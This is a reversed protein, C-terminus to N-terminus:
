FKEKLKRGNCTVSKKLSHMIVSCVALKISLKLRFREIHLPNNGISSWLLDTVSIFRKISENSRSNFDLMSKFNDNIQSADSNMAARNSDNGVVSSRSQSSQMHNRCADVDTRLQQINRDMRQEIEGMVGRIGDMDGHLTNFAHALGPDASVNKDALGNIATQQTALQARLDSLAELQRNNAAM